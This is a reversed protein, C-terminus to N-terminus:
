PKPPPTANAGTGKLRAIVECAALAECAPDMELYEDGTQLVAELTQQVLSLDSADALDYAWDCATDNDFTDVDWAGM